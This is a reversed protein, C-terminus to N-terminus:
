KKQRQKSRMCATTNRNTDEEECRQKVASLHLAVAVPRGVSLVLLDEVWAVHLDGHEAFVHVLLARVHLVLYLNAPLAANHM